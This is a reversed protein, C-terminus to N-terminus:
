PSNSALWAVYADGADAVRGLDDKKGLFASHPAVHWAAAGLGTVTDMM